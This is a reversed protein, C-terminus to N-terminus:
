LVASDQTQKAKIGTIFSWVIALATPKLMFFNVM